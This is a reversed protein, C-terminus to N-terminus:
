LYGDVKIRPDEEAVASYLINNQCNEINLGAKGRLLIIL